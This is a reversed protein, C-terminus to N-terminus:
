EKYARLQETLIAHIEKPKMSMNSVNISGVDVTMNKIRKM